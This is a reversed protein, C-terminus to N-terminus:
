LQSTCHPCRTARIAVQELCFPCERSTPVAPVPAPQAMMRNMARIIIFTVFAVILFAIVANIFIGFNMTVAGAAKADAVTAYPPTPSGAKLVWFINAFDVRGLLLGIPPMIVDDVLSKVISTFASGIIIGIALDIVNGRMAFKKFEDWM